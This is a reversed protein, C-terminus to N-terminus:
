KRGSLWGRPSEEIISSAGSAFKGGILCNQSSRLAVTQLQRIVMELWGTQIVLESRDSNRISWYSRWFLCGLEEQDFLDVFLAEVDDGAKAETGDIAATASRVIREM